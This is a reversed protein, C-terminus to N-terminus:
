NLNTALSAIDSRKVLIEENWKEKKNKIKILNISLLDNDEQNDVTKIHCFGGDSMVYSLIVNLLYQAPTFCQEINDEVYFKYKINRNSFWDTNIWFKDEDACIGCEVELKEYEHSIDTLFICFVGYTEGNKELVISIAEGNLERNRLIILSRLDDIWTLIINELTTQNNISCDLLKLKEDENRHNPIFHLKM